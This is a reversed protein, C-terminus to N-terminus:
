INYALSKFIIKIQYKDFLHCLSKRQGEKKKNVIKKM